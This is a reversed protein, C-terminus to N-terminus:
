MSRNRVRDQNASNLLLISIENSFSMMENQKMMAGSALHEKEWFQSIIKAHVFVFVAYKLFRIIVPIHTFATMTESLTFQCLCQDGWCSLTGQYVVFSSLFLRVHVCQYIMSSSENLASLRAQLKKWHSSAALFEGKAWFANEGFVMM